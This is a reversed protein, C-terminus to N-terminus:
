VAGVINGDRLSNRGHIVTCAQARHLPVEALPVSRQTLLAALNSRQRVPEPSETGRVAPPATRLRMTEFPDQTVLM